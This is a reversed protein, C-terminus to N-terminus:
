KDKHCRVYYFTVFPSTAPRTTNNVINPFRCHLHAHTSLSTHTRAPLLHANTRATPTREHPCYTHTRATPTRTPLLHAHPCYTHTRATPTRAPLLHAHPCSSKPKATLIRDWDCKNMKSRWAKQPSCLWTNQVQHAVLDLSWFLDGLFCYVWFAGFMQRGQASLLYVRKSHCLGRPSFVGSGLQFSFDCLSPVTGTDLAHLQVKGDM